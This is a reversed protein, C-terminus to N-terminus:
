RLTTRWGDQNFVNFVVNVDDNGDLWLQVKDEPICDKKDIRVSQSWGSAERFRVAFLGDQSSCSDMEQDYLVVIEDNTKVIPRIIYEKVLENSESIIHKISWGHEHTYVSGYLMFDDSWLSILTGNGNGSVTFHNAGGNVIMEPKGWGILPDFHIAQGTGDAFLVTAAGNDHTIV